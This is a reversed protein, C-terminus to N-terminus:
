PDPSSPDGSAGSFRRLLRRCGDLAADKFFAECEAIEVDKIALAQQSWNRREEDVPLHDTQSDIGVWLILDPDFADEFAYGLATIHRAGLVVGMEGGLIARAITVVEERQRRVYDESSMAFRRAALAIGQERTLEYEVPEEDMRLGVGGAVEAV